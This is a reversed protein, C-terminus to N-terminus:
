GRQMPGFLTAYAHNLPDTAQGTEPAHAVAGALFMRAHQIATARDSGRAIFTAVATALAGSVGRVRRGRPRPYSLVRDEEDPLGAVYDVITDDPGDEDTLVITEAGITRLMDAVHRKDELTVIATGALVAADQMTAVLVRARHILRRKLHAVTADDALVRGDRARIAADFVLPTGPTAELPAAVADVSAVDALLGVKVAGVEQVALATEIQRRILGPETVAVDLIGSGDQVTICTVACAADGGLATVTKVDGQVGGAGTNDSGGIVLVRGSM